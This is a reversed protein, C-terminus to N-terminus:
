MLFSNFLSHIINLVNDFNLDIIQFRDNLFLIVSVAFLLLFVRLIYKFNNSKPKEGETSFETDYNENIITENTINKFTDEAEEIVTTKDKLKLLKKEESQIELEDTSIIDKYNDTNEKKKFLNPIKIELDEFRSVSNELRIFRQNSINSQNEITLIKNELTQIKELLESIEQQNHGIRNQHIKEEIENKAETIIKHESSDQSTAFSINELKNLQDKIESLQDLKTLKSNEVDIKADINALTKSMIELTQDFPASDSKLSENAEAISDIGDLSVDNTEKGFDIEFKNKNDIDKSM